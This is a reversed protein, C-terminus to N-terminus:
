HRNLNDACVERLSAAVTHLEAEFADLNVPRSPGAEIERAMEAAFPASLNALAGRLGHAIRVVAAEDGATAAVRAAAIQAPYDECYLDVLCHLLERDHSVRDLLEGTLIEGSGASM